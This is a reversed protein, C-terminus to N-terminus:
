RRLDRCWRLFSVVDPATPVADGAGGYATEIRFRWLDPDPLPVLPWRRWWGPRALRLLEVVAIPWLSVRPAM